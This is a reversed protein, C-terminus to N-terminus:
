MIGNNCWSNYCKHYVLNEEGEKNLFNPSSALSTKKNVDVNMLKHLEHLSFSINGREDFSTELGRQSVNKEIQINWVFQFSQNVVDHVNLLDKANWSSKITVIQESLTNCQMRNILYKM